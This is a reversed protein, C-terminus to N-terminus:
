STMMRENKGFLCAETCVEIHMVPKMVQNKIKQIHHIPNRTRNMIMDSSFSARGDRLNAYAFSTSLELNFASNINLHLIVSSIICM